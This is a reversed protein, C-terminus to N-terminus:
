DTYGLYGEAGVPRRDIDKAMMGRLVEQVEQWERVSM